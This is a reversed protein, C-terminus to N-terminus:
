SLLSDPGAAIVPAGLLAAGGFLKPRFRQRVCVGQPSEACGFLGTLVMSEDAEPDADPTAGFGPTREDYMCGYAFIPMPLGDADTPQVEPRDNELRRQMYALMDAPSHLEEEIPEIVFADDRERGLVLLPPLTERRRVMDLLTPMAFSAIAAIQKPVELDQPRASAVANTLDVVEESATDYHRGEPQTAEDTM